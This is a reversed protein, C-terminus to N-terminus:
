QESYVKLFYDTEDKGQPNKSSWIMYKVVNAYVNTSPGDTANLDQAGHQLIPYRRALDASM